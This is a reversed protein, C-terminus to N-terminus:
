NRSGNFNRKICLFLMGCVPSVRLISGEEVGKRKTDEHVGMMHTHSNYISARAAAVAQYPDDLTRLV